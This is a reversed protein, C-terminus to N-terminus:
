PHRRKEQRKIYIERLDNIARHVRVKITNVPCSFLAAIEAYPVREFHSLTLLERKELPLMSFAEHLQRLEQEKELEALPTVVAATPDGAAELALERRPRSYHDNVLNRAIRFAWTRFASDARYSHRYKLIRLFMEQLLDHSLDPDTTLRVFYGYFAGKHREFLEGLLRVDGDRVEGMLHEDTVPNARKQEL